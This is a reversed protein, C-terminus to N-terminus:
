TEWKGNDICAIIIYTVVVKMTFLFSSFHISFFFFVCELYQSDNQLNMKKKELSCMFILLSKIKLKLNVIYM